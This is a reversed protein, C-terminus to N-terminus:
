PEKFRRHIKIYKTGRGSTSITLLKQEALKTMYTNFLTLPLSASLEIAKSALTRFVNFYSLLIVGSRSYFRAAEPFLAKFGEFELTPIGETSLNIITELLNIEDSLALKSVDRMNREEYLPDVLTKKLRSGKETLYFGKESKEVYSLDQLFHLRPSTQEQCYIKVSPGKRKVRLATRDQEKEIELRRIKEKISKRESRIRSQKFSNPEFEIKKELWTDVASLFHNALGTKPVNEELLSLLPLIRDVDLEMLATSFILQEDNRLVAVFGERQLEEELRDEHYFFPEGNDNCALSALIYGNKAWRTEGKRIFQLNQALTLHNFSIVDREARKATSGMGTGSVRRESKPIINWNYKDRHEVIAKRYKKILVDRSMRTRPTTLWVFLRIFALRRLDSSLHINGSLM